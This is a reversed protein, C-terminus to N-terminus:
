ILIENLDVVASWNWTEDQMGTVFVSLCDKTDDAVISVDVSADKKDEGIKEVLGVLYTTGQINKVQGRRWFDAISSGDEDIGTIKVSFSVISEPKVVINKSESTLLETQVNTKTQNKLSVQFNTQKPRSEPIYVPPTPLAWEGDSWVHNETPAFNFLELKPNNKSIWSNKMETSIDVIQHTILSVAKM